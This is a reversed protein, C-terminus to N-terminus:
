IEDFRSKERFNVSKTSKLGARAVPGGWPKGRPGFHYGASGRSAPYAAPPRPQPLRPTIHAVNSPNPPESPEETTLDARTDLRMRMYVVQVGRSACTRMARARSFNWSSPLSCLDAFRPRLLKRRAGWIVHSFCGFVPRATISGSRAWVLRICGGLPLYVHEAYDPAIHLGGPCAALRLRASSRAAIESRCTTVM